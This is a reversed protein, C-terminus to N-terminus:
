VKLEIQFTIEGGTECVLAMEKREEGMSGISEFLVLLILLM